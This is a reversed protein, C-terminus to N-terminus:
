MANLAFWQNYMHNYTEVDPALNNALAFATFADAFLDNELFYTGKIFADIAGSDGTVLEALAEEHKKKEVASLRQLAVKESFKSKKSLRVHVLITEHRALEQSNLDLHLENGNATYLALQENHLDTVEVEYQEANEGSWSLLVTNGYVMSKVPLNIEVQNNRSSGKREVAGTAKIKDTLANDQGNLLYNAYKATLSSEKKDKILIEVDKASYTGETNLELTQGLTSFLGIYANEKLTLVFEGEIWDGVVVNKSTKDQTYQIDGTMTLVKYRSQASLNLTGVMFLVYVLLKTLKM